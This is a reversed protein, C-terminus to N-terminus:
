RLNSINKMVDNMLELNSKTLINSENETVLMFHLPRMNSPLTKYLWEKNRKFDSDLPIWLDDQDTESELVLFGLSILGAFILCGFIVWGPNAHICNHFKM